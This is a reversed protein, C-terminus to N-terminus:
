GNAKKIERAELFSNVQEHTRTFVKLFDLLWRREALTGGGHPLGFYHFDEWLQYYYYFEEWPVAQLRLPEKTDPDFITFPKGNVAKEIERRIMFGGPLNEVKDWFTSDTKFGSNYGLLL